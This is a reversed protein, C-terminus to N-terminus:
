IVSTGNFCGNPSNPYLPNKLSPNFTPLSSIPAVITVGCCGSLHPLSIVADNFTGLPTLTKSTFSTPLPDNALAPSNPKSKRDPRGLLAIPSIFNNSNSGFNIDPLFGLKGIVFGNGLPPPVNPL